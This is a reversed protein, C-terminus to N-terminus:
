RRRVKNNERKGLILIYILGLTMNAHDDAIGDGIDGRYCWRWHSEATIAHWPWRQRLLVMVLLVRRHRWTVALVVEAVGDAAHNPRVMVLMSEPAQHSSGGVLWGVQLNVASSTRPSWSYWELRYGSKPVSSGIDSIKFWPLRTNVLLIIPCNMLDALNYEYCYKRELWYKHWM